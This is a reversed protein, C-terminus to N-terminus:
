DLRELADRDDSGCERCKFWASDPDMASEFTEGCDHCRYTPKDGDDLGVKRKLTELM